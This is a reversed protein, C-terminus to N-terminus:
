LESCVRGGIPVSQMQKSGPTCQTSTIAAAIGLTRCLRPEHEHFCCRKSGAQAHLTWRATCTNASTCAPHKQLCGDNRLHLVARPMGKCSDLVPEIGLLVVHGELQVSEVEHYVERALHPGARWQKPCCQGEHGAQMSFGAHGLLLHSLRSRPCAPADHTHQHAAPM